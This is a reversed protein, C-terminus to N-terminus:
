FGPCDSNDFCWFYGNDTGQWGVGEGTRYWDCGGVFLFLGLIFTAFSYKGRNGSKRERKGVDAIIKESGAFELKNDAMYKECATKGVVLAVGFQAAMAQGTSLTLCVEALDPLAHALSNRGYLRCKGSAGQVVALTSGPGRTAKCDARFVAIVKPAPARQEAVKTRKTSDM